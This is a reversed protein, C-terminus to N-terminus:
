RWDIIELDHYKATDFTFDSDPFNHNTEMKKVEITYQNGELENLVASKILFTSKDIFVSINSVNYEDSDPYLRIEHVKIGDITKESLYKSSFGKEYITFLSTPDMLESGEDDVNNITVQNSEKMYNWLTTCDSIVTAGFEPIIVCYKNGKIKISGEYKENIDEMESNTLTFVFDAAISKYSRTKESVKDLIEQAKQDQANAFLATLLVLGVLLIKRM